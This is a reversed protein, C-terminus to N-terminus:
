NGHNKREQQERLQALIRKLIREATEPDLQHHEALYNFIWILERKM